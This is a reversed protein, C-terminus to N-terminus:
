HRHTCVECWGAPCLDSPHSAASASALPAAHTLIRAPDFTGGQVLPVLMPIYKRHPCNGMQLTLNKNMAAGIPFSKALKPYVGIISLTGAKALAEVAWNLVQSPADGPQWLDGDPNQKPAVENQEKEFEAAQAKAAKAAPGS